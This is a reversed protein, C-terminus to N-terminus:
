GKIGDTISGYGKKEQVGFYGETWPNPHDTASNLVHKMYNKCTSPFKNQGMRPTWLIELIEKQENVVQWSLDFHKNSEFVGIRTHDNSMRSDSDMEFGERLHQPQSVEGSL